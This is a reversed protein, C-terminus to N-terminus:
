TYATPPLSDAVRREPILTSRTLIPTYAMQPKSAASAPMMTM